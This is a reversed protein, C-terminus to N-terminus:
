SERRLKALWFSGPAVGMYLTTLPVLGAYWLCGVRRGRLLFIRRIVDRFIQPGQELLGQKQAPGAGTIGDDTAESTWGDMEPM